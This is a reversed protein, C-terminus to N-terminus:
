GGLRVDIANTSVFGLGNATPDLVVGQHYVHLGRLAASPPVQIILQFRGNGDAQGGHMQEINTFVSCLPAGVPAMSLPLPLTDIFQNSTGIAIGCFGFPLADEMTMEYSRGLDWIGSSDLMPMKTSTSQCLVRISWEFRGTTRASWAGAEFRFYAVDIGGASSDFVSPAVAPTDFGVYFTQGAAISVPTVSASTWKATAGLTLSGTSVVISPVGNGDLLRVHAPLVQAQGNTTNGYLEFGVIQLATPAVMELAYVCNTRLAVSTKSATDNVSHCSEPDAPTSGPCSTGYSTATGPAGLTVFTAGRVVLGFDADVAATALHTDAVVLDAVVDISWLGAQPNQLFVCEVTDISDAAGGSQSVNGARLGQNGWYVAGNPALVRLNLDNVRTLLAAPNGAPDNFTMAIKLDARGAPVQVRYRVVQDQQLPRTEDVVFMVARDDYMSKLSPQGWGQHERRNDTSAATFAYPSASAIQLAKLTTYNPRNQFRSGGPVRVPGFLGDTFMQIALANAGAVIPTAGSTGGFNTYSDGADYGAAGTRDSTHIADYYSCLDPKIRGDAAPGISGGGSWSDDAPDVNDFHRVGGVSFVNKAWAQPRSQQNGNNSQSQTWAIGHDFVIDDADASISTYNATLGNGWSATTFMVEHTNVLAEVVQWRSTGVPVCTDNTFFPTIDPAMGRAAPNSAGNGFVIGSSAHGHDDATACSMVAVPQTTFDPHDFQIGEYIHGRVGQGSYGGLTEIHDAGLQVRAKDMDRGTETVRDSWLVQDLRLAQLLQAGTLEVELLLSGPQENTVRARMAEFARILAPKDTRKDVVVVNYLAAPAALDLGDKSLLAPDIRFAPQYSGVWRVGDIARVNEATALDMRVVHARHPLYGKVAGGCTAIKQRLEETPKGHFQVIWLSLSQDDRLMEPVSPSGLLPDFSGIRLALQTESQASGAAAFLAAALLISAFRHTRHM